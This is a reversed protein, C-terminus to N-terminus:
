VSEPTQSQFQTQRTMKEKIAGRSPVQSAQNLAPPSPTPSVRKQTLSQNVLHVGTRRPDIMERLLSMQNRRWKLRTRKRTCNEEPIGVEQTEQSPSRM